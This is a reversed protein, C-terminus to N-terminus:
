RTDRGCSICFKWGVELETNCAPCHQVTLNHGCGPCFIVARGEPLGTSCYRCKEGSSVKLPTPRTIALSPTSVEAPSRSNGRAVPSDYAPGRSGTEHPRPRPRELVFAPTLAPPGEFAETARAAMSVAEVPHPSVQHPPIGVGAVPTFRRGKLAESSLAVTSTGYARYASLDPNPSDLERTLAEVMDADGVLLGRSGSLLQLLALEYQENSELGLERRQTRYPVIQQYIQAVEFPRAELEPFGSRINQVLRHYLRDLEDM